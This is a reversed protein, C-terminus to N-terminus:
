CRPCVPDLVPAIPDAIRYLDYSAVPAGARRRELVGAPDVTRFRRQLETEFGKGAEALALGPAAFLAQPPDPAFAWRMRQDPQVIAISPDGYYAMLSALAYGQTLVFAAHDGRARADLERALGRFGEIRAAPDALGLPIVGTIAQAFGLAAVALGLPAAWLAGKAFVGPLGALGARRARAVWDGALIACAPYLPALWNGQVRDHLSHLLFYAAAPAITAVLMRRAEDRSGPAAAARWSITAVAAVLAAFVLPNILGIQSGLFELVYEPAFSKPPARGLQKVFSAWGHRANWLVFPAFVVLALGASAALWPSRLWRRLSPTAFLALAVGAAFFAATFKSQLALGLMLGIALLWRAGGSRWLEALGLEVAM